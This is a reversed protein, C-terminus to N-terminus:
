GRSLARVEQITPGERGERNSGHRFSAQTKWAAKQSHRDPIDQGEGRVWVKGQDHLLARKYLLTECM